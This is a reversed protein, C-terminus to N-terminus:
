KKRTYVLLSAPRMITGESLTYFRKGDRSWAIAEGQPERHYPLQVPKKALVQPLSERSSREWCYVRDYDKLLVEKGDKTISGAVIEKYPLTMVKRLTLIEHSFPYPTTYLAVSDERKSILYLDNTVPDILITEADRRGDPMRLVLTDFQTVTKEKEAALKPEEFRYIFKFDYQAFNDGIDAVYIYNKGRVPGAGIAIDEWDRNHVGSLTCVLNIKAHQDILFVEPPNGSDNITWLLGSNAISAVLGSAEALRQDVQGLPTGGPLPQNELEFVWAVLGWVGFLLLAVVWNMKFGKVVVM